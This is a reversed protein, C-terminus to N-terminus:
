KPIFSINESRGGDSFSADEWIIAFAPDLNLNDDDMQTVIPFLGGRGSTFLHAPRPFQSVSNKQVARLRNAIASLGFLRFAFAEHLFQAALPRTM